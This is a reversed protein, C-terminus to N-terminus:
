YKSCQYTDQVYTGGPVRSFRSSDSFVQVQGAQAGQFLAEDVYIELAGSYGHSKDEQVFCRTGTRLLSSNCTELAVVDNQFDLNNTLNLVSDQVEVHIGLGNNILVPRSSHGWIQGNSSSIMDNHDWNCAIDGLNSAAHAFLPLSTAVCLVLMRKM